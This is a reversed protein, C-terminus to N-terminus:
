SRQACWGLRGNKGLGAISQNNVHTGRQKWRLGLAKRQFM